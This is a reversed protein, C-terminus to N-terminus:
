RRSADIFDMFPILPLLTAAAVLFFTTVFVLALIGVSLMILDTNLPKRLAYILLLFIPIPIILFVIRAELVIKTFFPLLQGHLQGAFICSTIALLLWIGIFGAAFTVAFLVLSAKKM